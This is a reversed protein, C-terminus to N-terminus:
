KRVAGKDEHEALAEQVLTHATEGIGQLGFFEFRLICFTNNNIM